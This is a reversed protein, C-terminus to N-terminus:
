QAVSELLQEADVFAFEAMTEKWLQEADVFAFEAMTEKWLQEKIKKGEETYIM